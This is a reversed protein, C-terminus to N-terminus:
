AVLSLLKAAKQDAAAREGAFETEQALRTLADVLTFITFRGRTAAVDLARKAIGKPIGHKALAKM